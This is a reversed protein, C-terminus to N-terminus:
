ESNDIIDVGQPPVFNFVAPSIPTNEKLDVFVIRTTQGLNDLLELLRLRNDEFGIRVENFGSEESKPILNVWDYRGQTGIDEIVYNEDLNGSGALLIAPSKGLTQDQDRVTVQELEIDHIWVNEGDGVIEQADPPDYDWRFRGPRHIWLKGQGDDVETLSEDLVKQGFRAEFTNIENFFYNLADLGPSAIATRACTFVLFITIISSLTFKQM